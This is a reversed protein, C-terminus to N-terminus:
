LKETKLSNLIKLVTQQITTANPLVSQELQFSCPIPIDAMGVRGIPAKLADFCHEQLRAVIEACVGWRSVGEEICVTRGTKKVSAVLTDMDLPYLTRLDIVEAQIGQKVLEEAAKLAEHVMRSYAILSIDTGQRVCKAKGIPIEDLNDDVYDTYNYLVKNENFIVLNNDRMAAKLLYKADQPFAPAIVKIGPVNLLWADLTQSHTAGYGRGAGSAMRVVMPVQVQEAYMYHFKAAHNVLQDMALTMFDMFMLEVVPRMGMLAAGLAMGVFTNESIPTDRVREAGFKKLLGRTVGFCGGYDAIDEGMLFVRSDREMEETLAERIAISYATRKMM